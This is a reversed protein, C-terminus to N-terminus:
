PSLPTPPLGAIMRRSDEASLRYGYFRAYFRETERVLDDAPADNAAHADPHIVTAAWRVQLAVEPGYRDWPFVGAPNRYVRGQKVAALTKWLAASPTDDIKGANAALIIVDPAWALVQEISVERLNGDIGDAANRGGAAKIWEDVITHTGDVKLPNLSVVHLVRPRAADALPGITARVDSRTTALYRRYDDAREHATPTDLTRATEDICALMSDFDDFQVPVVRLGARRLAPIVPLGPTTFVVDTHLRLLEEANMTDSSVSEAHYFAPAVRYMWPFASPRAVTLVVRDAAGLMLLVANHAYWAEAIRQPQSQQQSQSQPAARVQMSACMAVIGIWVASLRATRACWRPM